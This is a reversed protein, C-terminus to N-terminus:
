GEKGDRAPRAKWFYGMMARERDLYKRRFTLEVPMDVKLDKISCDTFDLQVRGGGEFDVIGYIAPPDLSFALNDGTYTFIKAPRASFPFPEMEDIAHCEPNVCVHQAPYQPTGCKTCRAGVLGLIECRERGLVTHATIPNAEGRIGLEAPLLRKFLAYKEYSGLDRRQELAGSVGRRKGQVAGIKDTVEFLLADCGSGFSAVVIKDGPKATELSAVLMMLPLAAGTDGISAVLNDQFREADLKMMKAFGQLVRSAPVAIVWRAIQDPATKSEELLAQVAQPILKSYGETAIWRDEWQRDFPEDGARVHDAFDVSVSACALLEAIVESDGVDLAAAGDGFLHENASGMKALRTDAACVLARKASGAKVADLAALLAGTGCRLSGATDQTRLRAGANLAAAVIAANQRELYPLTTSALYLADLGSADGDALCDQAAAVAMTLSDEDHNAVAKQGRAAGYTAPNFWGMASFITKRDLFQWPVYAGYSTIGVM